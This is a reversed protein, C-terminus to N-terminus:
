KYTTDYNYPLRILNEKIFKKKDGKISSGFWGGGCTSKYQLVMQISGDPFKTPKTRYFLTIVDRNSKLPLYYIM